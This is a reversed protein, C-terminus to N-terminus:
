KRKGEDVNLSRSGDGFMMREGAMGDEKPIAWRDRRTDRRDGADTKLGADCDARSM